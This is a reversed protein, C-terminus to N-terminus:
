RCDATFCLNKSFFPLVHNQFRDAVASTHTGSYIEFSNAIGYNDFITHLKTADFRLGDQDGVDMAIARYQKLNGIYQDVFSLPSNATFKAVIEPVSVGDKTPLDFYLPPNKPDPAWAAATAYQASAFGPSQAALDAPSKADAVKKESAIAREKMQDAPGPGGGAMPSMCCPSMIYLAGFVEPHKMGIRSAGYGGMSHGVLGRSQRSPITRYHADMYAVVDRAIYNEFDGTTASSSYMSGNYVTKSDPLVIIAEQSGKAFAGEITQPVHIEHSWQEAGISYGHLAYVVPYHRKKDKEYSPPLFVIADRDVADGELYVELAAGHIKIHEVTVPKAGSVVEPVITQVQAALFSGSVVALTIAGAIFQKQLKM